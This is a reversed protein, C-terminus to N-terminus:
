VVKLFGRNFHTAKFHMAHKYYMRITTFQTVRICKVLCMTSEKLKQPMIEGL